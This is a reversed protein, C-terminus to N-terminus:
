RALRVTRATADARGSSDTAHVRLTVRVRRVHRLARRFKAKPRVTLTEAGAQSTTSRTGLAITRAKTRIGLRRATTRSAVLTARTNCPCTGTIEIRVRLGHRAVASPSRRGVVRAAVDPPPTVSGGPPPPPPATGSTTFTKDIGYTTGDANAGAFRYHYLTGPVLPTLDGKTTGGCPVDAKSGYGLTPGYEFFCSSAPVPNAGEGAAYGVVRASMDGVTEPNGTYIGNPPDAVAAPALVLGAALVTALRLFVQM